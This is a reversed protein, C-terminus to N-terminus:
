EVIPRFGHKASIPRLLERFLVKIDDDVDPNFTFISHSECQAAEVVHDYGTMSSACLALHDTVQKKPWDPNHEFGPWPRYTKDKAPLVELLSHGPDSRSVIAKLTGFFLGNRGIVKSADSHSVRLCWYTKGNVISPLLEIKDTDDCILNLTGTLIDRVVDKNSTRMTRERNPTKKM